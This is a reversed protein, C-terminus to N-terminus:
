HPQDRHWNCTRKLYGTRLTHLLKHRESRLRLMEGMYNGVWCFGGDNEILRYAAGRLVM